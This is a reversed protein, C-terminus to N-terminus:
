GGNSFFCNSVLLLKIKNLGSTKVMTKLFDKCCAILCDDHTAMIIFSTKRNHREKKCHNFFEGYLFGETKCYVAVDLFCDCVKTCSLLKKLSFFSNLIIHLKRTFHILFIDRCTQCFREFTLNARMETYCVFFTFCSTQEKSVSNDSDNDSDSDDSGYYIELFNDYYTEYDFNVDERAWSCRCDITRLPFSETKVFLDVQFGVFKKCCAIYTVQFLSTSTRSTNKIIFIDNWGKLRVCEKRFQSFDPSIDLCCSAIDLFCDCMKSKKFM